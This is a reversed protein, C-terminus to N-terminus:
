IVNNIFIYNYLIILQNTHIYRCNDRFLIICNRVITSTLVDSDTLWGVTYLVKVSGPVFKNVKVMVQSNKDAPVDSFLKMLDRKLENSFILYLESSKRSLNPDWEM